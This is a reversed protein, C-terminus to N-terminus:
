KCTHNKIYEEMENLEKTDRFDSVIWSIISIGIFLNYVAVGFLILIILGKLIPSINSEMFTHVIEDM